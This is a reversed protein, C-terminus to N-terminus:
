SFIYFGLAGGFGAATAAYYKIVRAVPSNRFLRSGSQLGSERGKKSQFLRNASGGSVETQEALRQQEYTEKAEIPGAPYGVAGAETENQINARKGVQIGVPVPGEYAQENAPVETQGTQTQTLAVRPLKPIMQAGGKVPIGVNTILEERKRESLQKDTYVESASRKKDKFETKLEDENILFKKSPQNVFTFKYNRKGPKIVSVEVKLEIGRRDKVTGYAVGNQDVKLRAEVYIGNNELEKEVKIAIGIWAQKQLGALTSGKEEEGMGPTELPNMGYAVPGQGSDDALVDDWFEVAKERSAIARKIEDESKYKFNSDKGRVLILKGEKLKRRDDEAQEKKIEGTAEKQRILEAAVHDEMAKVAEFGFKELNNTADKSYTKTKADPLLRFALLYVNGNAINKQRNVFEIFEKFFVKRLAIDTDLVTGTNTFYSAELGEIDTSSPVTDFRIVRQLREDKDVNGLINNKIYPVLFTQVFSEGLQQM